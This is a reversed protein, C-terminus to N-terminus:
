KSITWTACTYTFITTFGSTADAHLAHCNYLHKCIACFHFLYVYLEDHM